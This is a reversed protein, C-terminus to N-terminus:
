AALPDDEIQFISMHGDGLERRGLKKVYKTINRAKFVHVRFVFLLIIVMVLVDWSCIVQFLLSLNQLCSILFLAM